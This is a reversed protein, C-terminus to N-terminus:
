SLCRLGRDAVIALSRLDVAACLLSSPRGLRARRWADRSRTQACGTPSPSSFGAPPRSRAGCRSRVRLSPSRGPRSPTRTGPTARASTSTASARGGGGRRPAPLAGRRGLLPRPRPRVAPFWYALVTASRLGLHAAVPRDGATLVSLVARCPDSALRAARRPRGRDVAHRLPRVSRHSSVACVEVTGLAAHAPRIAATGSSGCRRRDRAGAQAAQARTLRHRRSGRGTWTRPTARPSTWSRRASSPSTTPRSRRRTPWCTTSSLVPLRCARVLDAADWSLGPRHVLAQCDSIGSGIAQRDAPWAGRLPPIRRDRRLGRAGRRTRDAAPPSVALTFEPALFPNALMPDAIPLRAM